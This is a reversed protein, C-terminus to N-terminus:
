AARRAVSALRRAADRLNARERPTVTSGGEGAPHHADLYEVNFAAADRAVADLDGDEPESSSVYKGAPLLLSTLEDPIVECLLAFAYHPMAVGRKYSALTPKPIGTEQTLVDLTLAHDREALRLMREQASIIDQVISSRRPM